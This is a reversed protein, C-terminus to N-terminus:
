PGGHHGRRARGVSLCQWVAKAPVQLLVPAMGEDSVRSPPVIGIRRQVQLDRRLFERENQQSVAFTDPPVVWKVACRDLTRFECLRKEVREHIVSRVM